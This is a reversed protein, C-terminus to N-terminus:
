TQRSARLAGDRVDEGDARIRDAGRRRRPHDGRSRLDPAPGRRVGGTGSRLRGRRAAARLRDRRGPVPRRPVLVDARARRAGRGGVPWSLREPVARSVGGARVPGDRDQVPAGEVDDDDRADHARPLGGRVRDGRAPGHRAPRDQRRERRGGRGLQLLRGADTGRVARARRAAGRARRLVRVARRHLGHARVDGGAGPDCEVVRPHCHGVNVVGVGGAFDIFTNGDVDTITANLAEAAFVPLYVQLPEAIATEARALLERSRPGPIETRIEISRTM